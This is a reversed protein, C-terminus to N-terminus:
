RRNFITGIATILCDYVNLSHELLGGKHARHFKTSAPATFFDSKKLWELLVDAGERKINDQFLQLFRDARGQQLGSVCVRTDEM